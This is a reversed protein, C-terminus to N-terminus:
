GRCRRRCSDRAPSPCALRCARPCRPMRRRRTPSASRAGGTRRRCTDSVSARHQFVVRMEVCQWGVRRPMTRRRSDRQRSRSGFSRRRSMPSARMRNDCGGRGGGPAGLGPTVDARRAAATAAARANLAAAANGRPGELGLRTAGCRRRSKGSAIAVARVERERGIARADRVEAGTMQEHTCEVREVGRSRPVTEAPLLPQEPRGVAARNAERASDAIRVIGASPPACNTM